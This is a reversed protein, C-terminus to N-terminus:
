EMLDKSAKLCLVKLLWIRTMPFMTLINGQDGSDKGLRIDLPKGDWPYALGMVGRFFAFYM